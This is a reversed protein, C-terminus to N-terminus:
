LIVEKIAQAIVQAVQPVVANGLCKIRDVRNKVGKAVRQINPPEKHWQGGCCYLICWDKEEHRYISILNNPWQTM